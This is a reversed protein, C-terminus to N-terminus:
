NYMHRLFTLLCDSYRPGSKTHGMSSIMARHLAEALNTGRFSRYLPLGDKDVMYTGDDNTKHCYFSVGAPDSIEGRLIGELVLETMEKSNENFLQKQTVRDIPNAFVDFVLRVRRYLIAPMPIVRKVRLAVYKFSFAMVHEWKQGNERAVTKVLDLDHEDCIFFASRLLRLAVLPACCASRLLRLAVLPLIRSQIHRHLPPLKPKRGILRMQICQM